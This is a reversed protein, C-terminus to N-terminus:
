PSVEAARGPGLVAEIYLSRDSIQRGAEHCVEMLPGAFVSLLLTVSAMACVVITLPIWRRDHLRVPIQEDVTWFSANWIKMMSLLTFISTFLALFVLIYERQHMGEQVIMLKGWFGSLPPIGALSLGLLLFAVGLIPTTRWLNASRKLDDTGNLMTVTGGVLFLSSKVLNNHINYFLLAAFAYPSYLGVALVMYGIQSLIHFSLIGRIFNRSVAGFVGLVMTIGGLWAIATHVTSLDAPLVTGFIRLLVYVGVKTLMGAYLAALPAPLTPYAHPLWFYLPFIGAKVGFVALLMVALPLIRPDDSMQSARVSMEAFNLTGFMGYALGAAALFLMSSVANIALYPFAQKIDWDNAELTLLAYSSILMVEFAVFLNFLDGTLFSQNLGVILLQQLPLRLPHEWRSPMEFCGFALSAVSILAGVSVMTSAYVDAVIVIGFPAPWGGLSLAIPGNRYTLTVLGIAVALQLVASVLVLARRLRADRFLLALVGTFAPLLIPLMLANM